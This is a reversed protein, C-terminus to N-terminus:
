RMGSRAPDFSAKPLPTTPTPTVDVAGKDDNQHTVGM